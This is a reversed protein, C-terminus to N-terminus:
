YHFFARAIRQYTAGIPLEQGAVILSAPGAESIYERNVLYADHIRVFYRNLFEKEIKSLPEPILRRRGNSAHVTTHAGISELWTINKLPMHAMANGARILLGADDDGALHRNSSNFIALEIASLLDEARFPKLIYASPRTHRAKGQIEPSSYSTVYIFPLRYIRQLEHGLDIGTREEGLNIDTLVLSPREKGIERIAEDVSGAIRTGSYGQNELIELISEAILMEDEVILINKKEM